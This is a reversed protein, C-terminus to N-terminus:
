VWTAFMDQHCHHLKLAIVPSKRILFKKYDVPPNGKLVRSEGDRESVCEFPEPRLLPIGLKFNRWYPIRTLGLNSTLNSNKKSWLKIM